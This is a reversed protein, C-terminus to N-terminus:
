EVKRAESKEQTFHYRIFKPLNLLMYVIDPVYYITLRLWQTSINEFCWILCPSLEFIMSKYEWQM